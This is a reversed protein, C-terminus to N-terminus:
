AFEDIHPPEDGAQDPSGQEEPQSEPGTAAARESIKSRPRRPDMPKIPSTKELPNIPPMFFIKSSQYLELGSETM